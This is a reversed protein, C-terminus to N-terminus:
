CTTAHHRQCAM